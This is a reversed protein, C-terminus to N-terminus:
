DSRMIYSPVNFLLRAFSFNWNEVLDDHGYYSFRVLITSFLEKRIDALAGIDDWTVDPVTAFGERQASPQVVKLAHQFDENLIYNAKSEDNAHKQERCWLFWKEQISRYNTVTETTAETASERKCKAKLNPFNRFFKTTLRKRALVTAECVLAMLDTGVYGPTNKALFKWDLNPDTKEKRCLVELIKQRTTEDPFGLAIERDFRGPRRLAADLSDPRNTAGIVLVQNKM